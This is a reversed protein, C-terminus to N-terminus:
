EGCGQDYPSCDAKLLTLNDDELCDINVYQTLYMSAKVMRLEEFANEFALLLGYFNKNGINVQDNLVKNGAHNTVFVRKRSKDFSAFNGQVSKVNTENNQAQELTIVITWGNSTDKNNIQSRRIALKGLQFGHDLDKEIVRWRSNGAALNLDKDYCRPFSKCFWKNPNLQSVFAGNKCKIEGISKTNQYNIRHYLTGSGDCRYYCKKKNQNCSVLSTNSPFTSFDFNEPTPPYSCQQACLIPVLFILVGILKLCLRNNPM